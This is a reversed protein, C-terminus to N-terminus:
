LTFFSLAAWNNISTNTWTLGYDISRRVGILYGGYYQYQGNGSM